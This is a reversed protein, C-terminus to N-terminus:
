FIVKCFTTKSTTHGLGLTGNLNCGCAYLFNDKTIIFISEFGSHISKIKKNEIKIESPASSHSTHGLGLQGYSNYGWVFLKNSETLIIMSEGGASLSKVKQNGLNVRHPTTRNSTDGLGLEGNSNFGFSYLDGDETVVFTQQYGAVGRIVKKNLSTVKTPTTRDSTDGLGLQGCNNYGWIYLDGKRTIALSHAYGAALSIIKENNIKILIPTTTQNTDGTGLQSVGNYGWAYVQGEETLALTHSDGPAVQIIKQNPINVLTPVNANTPTEL